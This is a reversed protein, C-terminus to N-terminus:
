APMTDGRTQRVPICPPFGPCHSSMRQRLRTRSPPFAEGEGTPNVDTAIAIEDCNVLNRKVDQAVSKAETIAELRWDLDDPDWPLNHLDWNQYREALDPDSVMNHPDVFEYLHGRAHAIVLHVGNYTGSNGGLAQAFHRAASPKETLIGVTM